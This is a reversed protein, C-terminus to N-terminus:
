PFFFLDVSYRDFPFLLEQGGRAVYDFETGGEGIRITHLLFKLFGKEYQLAVTVNGASNTDEALLPILLVLFFLFAMVKNM